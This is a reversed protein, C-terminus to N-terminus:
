QSLQVEKDRQEESKDPSTRAPGNNDMMGPILHFDKVMNRFIVNYKDEVCDIETDPALEFLKDDVLDVDQLYRYVSWKGDNYELASLNEVWDGSNLYTIKDGDKGTHTEMRPQHIHGCVVCDYKNRMAIEVATKEYNNVYKVATKVSDKVRQSLSIKGYGFFESLKNVMLNIIILLDYGKGGLRALWKSHEMTVDFVDGHFFWTKKGDLELLLKNVIKLSGLEFGEFKRFLEDHNGTIYYVKVGRTLLTSIYKIIKLHSTPFYRKSFQWIDIIDGNLIVTQPKISKLYKLLERAKCGYTGLHIDSLVLLEVKRKKTKKM